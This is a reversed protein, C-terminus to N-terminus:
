SLLSRNCSLRPSISKQKRINSMKQFLPSGDWTYSINQADYKKYGLNSCQSTTMIRGQLQAMKNFAKYPTASSFSVSFSVSLYLYLCVYLYVSQSKTLLCHHLHFFRYSEQFVLFFELYHGPYLALALCLSLNTYVMLYNQRPQKIGWCWSVIEPVCRFFCNSVM